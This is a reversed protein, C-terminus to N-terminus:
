PRDRVPVAGTRLLWSWPAERRCVDLSIAARLCEPYETYSCQGSAHGSTSTGHIHCAILDHINYLEKESQNM